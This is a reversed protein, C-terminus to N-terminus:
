EATIRVPVQYTQNVSDLPIDLKNYNLRDKIYGELMKSETDVNLVVIEKDKNLTFTVNAVLDEAVRFKPNKLLTGIEKTLGNPEAHTPNTNASLVSTFTIALVLLLMKISKM